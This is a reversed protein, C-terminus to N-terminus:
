QKQYFARTINPFKTAVRLTKKITSPNFGNEAAVSIDCKGIGLDLLEYIDTSNELLTDKGVVGIDAAGREVYSAVDSPKVWFYRIGLEKNEFVLKRSEEKIEPCGYGATELIEYAKEGLRGKPLAISIIGTSEETEAVGPAELMDLNVAFGIAGSNKGFKRLLEDYRGGSLVKKPTGEIYGQFIVGNYYSIDNVISFDINIHKDLGQKCMENNLAELDKLASKMESNKCMSQLKEMVEDYTGYLMALTTINNFFADSLCYKTCLIRLESTNKGSICSVINKKQEITIKENSLLGALYGMHSIDLRTRDSLIDLSRKALLLIEGMVTVNVNGICEVGAQMQEKFESGDSRYVNENYYLKNLKEDYKAYKVISLTVDPRLAMLRGNVGTFTLIEGSPLFAKNETYLEYEEFRSMKYRSYGFEQYLKRLKFIVQEEFELIDKSIEMPYLIASVCSFIFLFTSWGKRYM